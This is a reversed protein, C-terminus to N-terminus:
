SSIAQHSARKPQARDHGPPPLVPQAEEIPASPALEASLQAGLRVVLATLCSWVM